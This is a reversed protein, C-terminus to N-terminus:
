ARLECVSLAAANGAATCRTAALRTTTDSDAANTAALMKTPDNHAVSTAAIAAAITVRNSAIAAQHEEGRCGGKCRGGKCRGRGKEVSYHQKERTTPCKGLSSATAAFKGPVEGIAPM